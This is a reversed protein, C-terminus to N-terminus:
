WGYQVLVGANGYGHQSVHGSTGRGFQFVGFANHAGNQRLSGSHGTGDQHVVGFNGFGRQSLAAANGVGRQSIHGDSQIDQVIGYIALGARLMNADRSSGPSISLSISGGANASFATMLFAAAAIAILPKSFM